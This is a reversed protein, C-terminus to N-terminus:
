ASIALTDREAKEWVVSQRGRLFRFFGKYVSYNMFFIYYFLPLIKMSIKRRALYAGVLALLYFTVQGLLFFRYSTGGGNLVIWLNSLFLLPFCLPVATWRLFRHSFFQFFLVPHRFVNFLEPRRSMSQFGGACIRAKRKGEEEMSTSPMERAYAGPEYGIRYGKLNIGTSIMFDDLLTDERLPEWLVTRISFLEGAAGAVTYLEADLSKLLSEYKWYLGEGAAATDAHSKVMVRKEGAVGGIDPNQYHSILRQIAYQNLMSNADCFVTIPTEVNVMARNLAAAKGKRQQDHLLRIQPYRTIIETTRDNSGDTVFLFSLKNAPYRLSLCNLIKDEIVDEENYAAVVLTTAPLCNMDSGAKRYGGQGKLLRGFGTLILLLIGYGIYGYLM